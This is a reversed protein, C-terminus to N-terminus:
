LAGYAFSGVTLPHRMPSKIVAAPAAPAVLLPRVEVYSPLLRQHVVDVMRAPQAVIM